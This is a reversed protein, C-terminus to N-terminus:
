DGMRDLAWCLALTLLGAIFLISPQLNDIYQYIKNM